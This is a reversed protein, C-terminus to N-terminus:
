VACAGTLQDILQKTVHDLSTQHASVVASLREESVRNSDSLKVTKCHIVPKSSVADRVEYDYKLAKAIIDGENAPAVRYQRKDVPFSSVKWTQAQADFVFGSASEASCYLSEASVAASFLLASLALCWTADHKRDVRIM